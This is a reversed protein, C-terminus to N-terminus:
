FFPPFCLFFPFQVGHSLVVGTKKEYGRASGKGCFGWWSAEKLVNALDTDPYRAESIWSGDVFAQQINKIQLAAPLTAKFISGGIAAPEVGAVAASCCRGDGAWKQRCGCEMERRSAVPSTTTRAPGDTDAAAFAAVAFTGAAVDGDDGDDGDDGADGADGADCGCLRFVPAPRLFPLLDCLNALNKTSVKPLSASFPPM